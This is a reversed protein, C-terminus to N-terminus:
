GTANERRMRKELKYRYMEKDAQEYIKTFKTFEGKDCQVVGYCVSIQDEIGPISMAGVRETFRKIVAETKRDSHANRIFVGFEDGGLRIKIDEERFCSCICQGIEKIVADGAVHGYTDNIHKFKDIDFMFFLGTDGLQLLDNVKTEGTVRNLLGSLGDVESQRRYTEEKIKDNQIYEVFYLVEHLRGEEDFTAPIFICRCWGIFRGNFDYSISTKGELRKPLTSLNLFERGSEQWEPQFMQDVVADLAEQSSDHGELVKQVHDMCAIKTYTDQRVDLIHMSVYAKAINALTSAQFEVVSIVSDLNKVDLRNRLYEGYQAALSKESIKKRGAEAEEDMLRTIHAIELQYLTKKEYRSISKSRVRVLHEGLDFDKEYFEQSAISSDLLAFFNGAVISKAKGTKEVRGHVDEIGLIVWEKQFLPNAFLFRCDQGDYEVIALTRDTQFDIQGLVGYFSQEGRVEAARNDKEMAHVLEMIPRPKSILFGQIKECGINKLFSYQEETEVGEALTSIGMERAMMIISRVIKKSTDSFSRMFAMDLKIEDFNVNQLMNLSSYQSGFDDMWVEYGLQRFSNISDNVVNRDMMVSETIEIKLMERSIGYQQVTQEVFEVVDFKYFDTRSLNVSVPVIEHGEQVFRALVSCVKQIVYQDVKYIFGTNELAPVFEAPSLFGFELDEWRSLAEMSCIAGTVTRVVPQFYVKIWGQEVAEDISDQVHEEVRLKRALMEDYEKYFVGEKGAADCAAKALECSLYASEGKKQLPYCGVEYRLGDVRFEEALKECYYTMLEAMGDLRSLTLFHDANIRTCYITQKSSRIAEGIYRLMSDGKETGYKSNFRKFNRLNGYVFAYKPIDEEPTNELFADSERLFERMNLLGTVLDSKQMDDLEASKEKLEVALNKKIDYLSILNQVRYSVTASTFPKRLFELAGHAFAHLEDEAKDSSSIVIVPIQDIYGERRMSELVENGTMKSMQLDLFILSLEEHSSKIISVAEEGNEAELIEYQEQLINRLMDRYLQADDVILIKKKSM